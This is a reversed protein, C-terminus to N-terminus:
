LVKAYTKVCAMDIVGAVVYAIEIPNEFFEVSHDALLMQMDNVEVIGFVLAAGALVSVGVEALSRDAKFGQVRDSRVFFCRM